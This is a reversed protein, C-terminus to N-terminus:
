ETGPARAPLRDGGASQNENGETAERWAELVAMDILYALLTLGNANAMRALRGAEIAIYEAAGQKTQLDRNRAAEAPEM